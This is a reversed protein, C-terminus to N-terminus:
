YSGYFANPSFECSDLVSLFLRGWFITQWLYRLIFKSNIPLYYNKELLMKRFAISADELHNLVQCSRELKEYRLLQKRFRNFWSGRSKLLGLDVYTSALEAAQQGHGKQMRFTRAILYPSTGKSWHLWRRCMFELWFSARMCILTRARDILEWVAGSLFGGFFRETLFYLRRWKNQM